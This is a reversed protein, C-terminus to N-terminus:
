WVCQLSHLNLGDRDCWDSTLMPLLQKSTKQNRNWEFKVAIVLIMTILVMLKIAVVQDNTKIATRQISCCIIRYQLLFQHLHVQHNHIQSAHIMKWRKFLKKQHRMMSDQRRIDKIPCISKEALFRVKAQLQNQEFNMARLCITVFEGTILPEYYFSWHQTSHVDFFWFLLICIVKNM